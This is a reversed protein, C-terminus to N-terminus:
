VFMTQALDVNTEPFIFEGDNPKIEAAIENKQKQSEKNRNERIHSQSNSIVDDGDEDGEEDEDEGGDEDVEEDREEDGDENEKMDEDEDENPVQNVEKDNNM